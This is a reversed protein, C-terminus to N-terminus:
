WKSRSGGCYKIIHQDLLDEVLKTAIERYHALTPRCSYWARPESGERVNLNVLKVNM